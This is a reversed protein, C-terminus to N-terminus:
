AVKKTSSDTNPQQSGAFAESNWVPQNTSDSRVCVSIMRVLRTGNTYLRALRGSIRVVTATIATPADSGNEGSPGTSPKVGSGSSYQCRSAAIRSPWTTSM